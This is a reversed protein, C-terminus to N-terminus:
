AIHYTYGFATPNFTNGLFLLGIYTSDNKADRINNKVISMEEMINDIESDDATKLSARLEALQKELETVTSEELQYVPSNLLEKVEKPLNSKIAVERIGESALLTIAYAMFAPNQYRVCNTLLQMPSDSDLTAIKAYSTKQHVLGTFSDRTSTTKTTDVKVNLKTFSAGALGFAFQLYSKQAIGDLQEAIRKVGDLMKVTPQNIANYHRYLLEASDQISM